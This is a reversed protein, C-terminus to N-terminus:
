LVEFFDEFGTIYQPSDNVVLVGQGPNERLKLNEGDAPNRALLDNFRENYIEYYNVKIEFESSTTKIEENIAAFIDNM